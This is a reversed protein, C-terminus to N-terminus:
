RDRLLDFRKFIKDKINDSNVEVLEESYRVIRDLGWYHKERDAETGAQPSYVEYEDIKETKFYEKKRVPWYYRWHESPSIQGNNWTDVSKYEYKSLYITPISDQDFDIEIAYLPGKRWGNNLEVDYKNQFLLIFNNIAWGYPNNDSKWRLFRNSCVVYNNEESVTKCYKMMKDINEYTKHIVKFANRINESSNM